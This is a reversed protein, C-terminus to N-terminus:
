AGPKGRPPSATAPSASTDAARRFQIVFKQVGQGAITTQELSILDAGAFEKSRQLNKVLDAAAFNTLAYGSANYVGAKEDLAELWIEGPINWSLEDLVRVPGQQNSRLRQIAEIRSNLLKERAEFTKVDQVVKKLRDIQAQLSEKEGELRAITQVDTWWWFALAMLVVLAGGGGISLQQLAAARQKLARTPLLNIRIM